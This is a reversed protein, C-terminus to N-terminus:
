LGVADAAHEAEAKTFGDGASSTLQRILGSRSMPTISQYNEAAEVAEKKWDVKINDAAFTADAKSYGDAVDSSLQRILGKKSMGMISVYNEAAQVANEQSKTMKPKAPAAAKTPAPATSKPASAAKAAATAPSSSAAPTQAVATETEDGGSLGNIAAILIAAGGVGTLIKHRAFWNKQPEDAAQAVPAAPAAATGSQGVPHWQNDSGLVHGNVVDGPKYNESM